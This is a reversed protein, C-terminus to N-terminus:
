RSSASQANTEIPAILDRATLVPRMVGRESHHSSQTAIHIWEHLIVHSIAQSLALRRQTGTMFRTKPWLVQAISACDVYIVPPIYGSDKHVWGIPVPSTSISRNWYNDCRGLIEVEIRIPFVPAPTDDAALIVRVGATIPAVRSEAQADSKLTTVLVPWLSQRIHHDALIVITTSPGTARQAAVPVAASIALLALAFTALIPKM